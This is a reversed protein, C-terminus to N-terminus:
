PQLYARGNILSEPFPEMMLMEDIEPITAPCLKVAYLLAFAATVCKDFDTANCQALVVFSTLHLLKCGTKARVSIKSARNFSVEFSMSLLSSFCIGTLFSASTSSIALAM